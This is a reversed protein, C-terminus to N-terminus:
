ATLEGKTGYEQTTMVPSACNDVAGGLIMGSEDVGKETDASRVKWWFGLVKGM